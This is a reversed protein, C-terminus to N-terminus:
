VNAHDKESDTEPSQTANKGNASGEGT